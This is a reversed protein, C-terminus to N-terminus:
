LSTYTTCCFLSGFFLMGDVMVMPITQTLFLFASFLSFITFLGSCFFFICRHQNHRLIFFIIIKQLIEGELKIAWTCASNITPVSHLAIQGCAATGAHTM